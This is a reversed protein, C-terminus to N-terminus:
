RSQFCFIYCIDFFSILQGDFFIFKGLGHSVDTGNHQTTNLCAQKLM